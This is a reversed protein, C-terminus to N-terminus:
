APSRPTQRGADPRPGSDKSAAFVLHRPSSGRRSRSQRSRQPRPRTEARRENRCLASTPSLLAGDRSEGRIQTKLSVSGLNIRGHPSPAPQVPARVVQSGLSTTPQPSMRIVGDSYELLSQFAEIRNSLQCGTNCTRQLPFCLVLQSTRHFFHVSWCKRRGTLLFFGGRM